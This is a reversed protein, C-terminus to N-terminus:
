GSAPNDEMLNRIRRGTAAEETAWPPNEIRDFRAKAALWFQVSLEEPRGAQNWLHYAHERVIHETSEM